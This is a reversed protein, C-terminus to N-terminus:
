ADGAKAPKYETADLGKVIPALTKHFAEVTEKLWKHQRNWDDRDTPSADMHAIVHSEKGEPLERWELEEKIATEVQQRFNDYLLHYHALRDPGQLCLYAGIDKARTNMRAVLHFWSRGLAFCTWHQPQPAQCRVFTRSEEMYNRFQTWYELQLAKTETLEGPPHITKTWDNPKCVMNFKPAIPSDGIRWLEIELGFFSISDNTVRNLWDMAARHEETFKAAVWIITVADLGAAYTLLQGLHTHDTRELQNEILVWHNDVTDKCLIDARFPGVDQEQAQLELDLGITEGLLALNEQKALWPTFEQAERDWADRLDVVRLRGLQKNKGDAM